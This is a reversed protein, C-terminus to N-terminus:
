GRIVQRQLAPGSVVRLNFGRLEQGLEAEWSKSSQNSGISTPIRSRTRSNM